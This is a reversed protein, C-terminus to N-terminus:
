LPCRAALKLAVQALIVSASRQASQDSQSDLRLFGILAIDLCM